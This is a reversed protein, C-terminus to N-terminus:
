EAKVRAPLNVCCRITPLQLQLSPYSSLVLFCQSSSRLYVMVGCVVCVRRCVVCAGDGGCVRAPIQVSRVGRSRKERRGAHGHARTSNVVMRKVVGMSKVVRV